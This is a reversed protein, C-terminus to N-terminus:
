DSTKITSPRFQAWCSLEPVSDSMKITSPRFQASGSLGPVFEAIKGNRETRMVEDASYRRAATVYSYHRTTRPALKSERRADATEEKETDTLQTAFFLNRSIAAHHPAPPWRQPSCRHLGSAFALSREHASRHWSEHMPSSYSFGTPLCDPM